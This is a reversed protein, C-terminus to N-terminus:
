DRGHVIVHSCLFWKCIVSQPHGPPLFPLASADVVRLGHTGFVRAKADVVASSDDRTGMKGTQNTGTAHSPLFFSECTASAHFLQIGSQRIVNMIDADSTTNRGPVVEEVWHAKVNPTDMMDRLRKFAALALQQDAPHTLLNPNIIPLDSANRSSLTVNGRSQPAVIAASVSSYMYPTRPAGQIYNENNGSYADVLLYEVEPWDPPFQQLSRSTSSSFNARYADPVKEWAILEGGPNGIIGHGNELYEETAANAYTANNGLVSHTLVDVQYSAGFLYHDQMNQGVGALNSVVPINFRKLTDKPGIGSLMLLQPSQFAGASLIIEHRACLTYSDLAVRTARKGNFIIKNALTNNYVTVKRNSSELFSSQSSDRTQREPNITNMCYQVGILSGSVFDTIPPIGLAQWGAQVFSSFANAWIAVSVHLPGAGLQFARSNYPVSANAPRLHNQPPTSNVSKKFYPLFADYRYSDDGVQSAWEDLSDRTPRQYTFYNRASSPIRLEPYETPPVRSTGSGLSVM